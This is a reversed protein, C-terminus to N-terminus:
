CSVAVDAYVFTDSFGQDLHEIKRDEITCNLTM